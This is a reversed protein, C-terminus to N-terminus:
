LAKFDALVDATKNENWTCATVNAFYNSQKVVVMTEYMNYGNLVCSITLCPHEEGAFVMTSTDVVVNEYGASALIDSLQGKSADVYEQESYAAMLGKLKEFTVNITDMQNSHIAYMDTLTDAEEMKAAYDEDVMGLAAKNIEQIEADTKFTWDSNLECQIGLFENKYVNNSSTGTSFKKEPETKSESEPEKSDNQSTDSGSEVEGRVDDDNAGCAVFMFSMLVALLVASIKKFM